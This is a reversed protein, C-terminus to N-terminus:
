IKIIVVEVFEDGSELRPKKQIEHIDIRELYAKPRLIGDEDKITIWVDSDNRRKLYEMYSEQAINRIKTKDM